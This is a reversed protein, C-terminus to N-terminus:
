LRVTVKGYSAMTIIIVQYNKEICRTEAEELSNCVLIKPTHIM